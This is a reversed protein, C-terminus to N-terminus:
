IEISVTLFTFICHASHSFNHTTWINSSHSTGLLLFFVTIFFSNQIRKINKGFFIYLHGINKFCHMVADALQSIWLLVVIFYWKRSFLVAITFFFFWTIAFTLSSTSFNFVEHKVSPFISYYLRKLFCISLEEYPLCQTAMHGLLEVGLYMVSLIPLM